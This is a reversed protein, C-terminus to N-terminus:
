STETPLRKKHALARVRALNLRDLRDGDGKPTELIGPLRRIRRDQLLAHFGGNGITGEGIGAHRDRRSGAPARSGNLHILRVREFGDLAREIADLSGRVEPAGDLRYGAAHLHCTDLCVGVREPDTRDLLWRLEELRAGISTGQGATCELLLAPGDPVSELVRQIGALIRELAADPGAGGHAGPHLVLGHLGLVGSRELELACTTCSRDWLTSDASGLNLLYCAHAYGPGVELVDCQDRFRSIEDQELPRAAWQRNSKVFIQFVDCGLDSAREVARDVGGAISVHVGVRM